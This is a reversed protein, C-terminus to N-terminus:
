DGLRGANQCTKHPSLLPWKKNTILTWSKAFNIVLLIQTMCVKLNKIVINLIMYKLKPSAYDCWFNIIKSCRLLCVLNIYENLIQYQDEKVLWSNLRIFYCYSQPHSSSSFSGISISIISCFASGSLSSFSISKLHDFTIHSPLSCM